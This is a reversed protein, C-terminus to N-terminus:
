DSQRCYSTKYLFGFCRVLTIFSYGFALSVVSALGCVVSIESYIYSEVITERSTGPVMKLSIQQIGKNQGPLKKLNRKYMVRNCPLPFKESCKNLLGKALVADRLYCNEWPPMLQHCMNSVNNIFREPTGVFLAKCTCSIGERVCQGIGRTVDVGSPSCKKGAKSKLSVSVPEVIEIEYDHARSLENEDIEGMLEDSNDELIIWRDYQAKCSESHWTRNMLLVFPNVESNFIKSTSNHVKVSYVFGWLVPKTIVNPIMYSPNKLRTENMLIFNPESVLRSVFSMIGEQQVISSNTLMEQMLKIHNQSEKQTYESCSVSNCKSNLYSLGLAELFQCMTPLSSKGTIRQKEQNWFDGHKALVNKIKEESLWRENITITPFPLTNVTNFNGSTRAQVFDNM